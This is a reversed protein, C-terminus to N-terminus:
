IVWPSEKGVGGEGDGLGGGVGDVGERGKGGEKVAGKTGKRILCKYKTAM